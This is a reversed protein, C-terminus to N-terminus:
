IHTIIGPMNEPIITVVQDPVTLHVSVPRKNMLCILAIQIFTSRSRMIDHFRNRRFLMRMVPKYKMVTEPLRVSLINVQQIFFCCYIKAPRAVQIKHYEPINSGLSSEIAYFNFHEPLIFNDM